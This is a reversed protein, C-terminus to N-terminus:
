IKEYKYNVMIGWSEEMRLESVDANYNINAITASNDLHFREVPGKKTELYEILYEENPIEYFNNKLFPIPSLTYFNDIGHLKCYDIILRLVDGGGGKLTSGPVRFISYFTATEKSSIDDLLINDISRSVDSGIKASVIYQPEDNEAYVFVTRTGTIRTYAGISPHVPDQVIYDLWAYKFNIDGCKFIM